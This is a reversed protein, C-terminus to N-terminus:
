RGRPIWEAMAATFQPVPIPKVPLPDADTARLGDLVIRLYRRYLEPEAQRGFDILTILMFNILPVDTTAMDKRVVGADVARKVIRGVIPALKLRTAAVRPRNQTASFLVDKLGRDSAQLALAREFFGELAAWPDPEELCEKAIEVLEGIRDVMLEEVLADKNPFRRYATGIGVGAHRAIDDLTVDLGREAFVERAAELLRRRNREADARLPAPVPVPEPM